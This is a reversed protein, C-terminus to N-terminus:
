IHPLPMSIVILGTWWACTQSLNYTHTHARAYTHTVSFLQTRTYTHSLHLIARTHAHTTTSISPSIHTHLSFLLPHTHPHTPHARENSFLFFYVIKQTHSGLKQTFGTGTIVYRGFSCFSTQSVCVSFHQWWMRNSVSGILCGQQISANRRRRKKKQNPSPEQSRTQPATSGVSRITSLFTARKPKDQPRMVFCTLQLLWHHKVICALRSTSFDVWM